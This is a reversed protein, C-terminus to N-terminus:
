RARRPARWRRRLSAHGANGDADVVVTREGAAVQELAKTWYARAEDALLPPMFGVSAGSNVSDQLVDVLGEIVAPGPERTVSAITVNAGM